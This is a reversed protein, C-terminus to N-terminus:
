RILRDVTWLWVAAIALTALTVPVGVRAHDRWSIKVGLRAAQDVVIINAISGVIFLNGALTSALGLVPGALPHTAAPLLLMVAPVNSVLNSLVVTAGFLWAPQSVDVGAEYVAAFIEDLVGSAALSHNVVFLGSFLVLLEWDVLGLIDRSAMRRSMLLVGAASLAAVERPIPAWLFVAVLLALVFFGKATQWRNFPPAAAEVGAPPATWRGRFQRCLIAWVAALSLVAPVGAEILYRGFSLGLRQGILMNQPNGILTAASGANSACALALLYPLPNLGRRDCGEILVPAMALCVVDNALLASLAGAIVILVALLAEPRLNAAAIQRTTNAYFGGLRFQASVVMLGLLLGITPVDIATWAAEPTVRGAALLVIAGLLAVGTRELALGPIEGLIMGLYVFAFVLVVVSDM